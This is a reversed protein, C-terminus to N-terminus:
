EDVVIKILWGLAERKFVSGLLRLTEKNKEEGRRQWPIGIVTSDRKSFRAFFM